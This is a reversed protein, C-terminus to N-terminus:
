LMAELLAAAKDMVPDTGAPASDIVKAPVQYDPTLGDHQLNHGDPTLWRAVTVKLSSDSTIPVLEQVVGKGFTKEGVLKAVGHEELAGSLIEAASATGGDTLILMRLNGNFVDYGKSRYVQPPGNKGFDETVVTDGPPLFWSAMDVAAELYGGPNGRLDLVLKHDGSLIFKRLAERFLDPSQATFSYLRIVFIGDSRASTDLTPINIVQRTITKKVPETSGKPVFVIIVKTDLPGRILQVAEDVSMGDTSTGDITKIADGAKVGAAEAPSDKLPAVVVLQGGKIGIEMGVGDFNGAIDENFMKAQEPPFFVTYPDDYSAALGEISGWIKDQVSTSANDVDKEDLVQWAKWFPAFRDPSVMAANDATATSASSASSVRGAYLGIFFALAAAAVGAFM